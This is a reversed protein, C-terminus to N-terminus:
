SESVMHATFVISSQCWTFLLCLPLKSAMYVTFLISYKSVHVTFVIFSQCMCVAFVISSQFVHLSCVCHFKSVKIKSHHSSPVFLSTSCLIMYIYIYIHLSVSLCVLECVSQQLFFSIYIYFSFFFFSCRSVFFFFVNFFQVKLVPNKFSSFSYDGSFVGWM